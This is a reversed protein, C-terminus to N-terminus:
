RWETANGFTSEKEQCDVTQQSNRKKFFEKKADDYVVDSM